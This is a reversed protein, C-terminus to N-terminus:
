EDAADSTYLLCFIFLVLLVVAASILCGKGKRKPQSPNVQGGKQPNPNGVYLPPQPQASPYRQAGPTVTAPPSYYPMQQNPSVVSARPSYAVTPVDAQKQDQYPQSSFQYPKRTSRRPYGAGPINQGPIASNDDGRMTQPLGSVERGCVGCFSANDPIESRCFECTRM